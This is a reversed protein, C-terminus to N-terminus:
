QSLHKKIEYHNPILEFLCNYNYIGTDKLKM